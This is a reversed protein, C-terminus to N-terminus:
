KVLERKKFYYVSLFGCLIFYFLNTVISLIVQKHAILLIFDVHLFPIYVFLQSYGVLNGLVFFLAYLILNMTLIFGSSISLSFWLSSIGVLFLTEVILLYLSQTVIEKVTFMHNMYFYPYQSNGFGFILGALGLIFLSMCLVFLALILSFCIKKIWIKQKSINSVYLNKYFGNEMELGFVDCLLVCIILLIILYLKQGFLENLLNFTNAEYPSNLMEIHNKNLYKLQKNENQLTQINRTEFENVVYGDMYAQIMLTNWKIKTNIFEETKNEENWYIKILRNSTLNVDKWFESEEDSIPSLLNNESKRSAKQYMKIQSENYHTDMYVNYGIFCILFFLLFAFVGVNRKNYILKKFEYMM